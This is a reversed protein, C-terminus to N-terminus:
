EILVGLFAFCNDDDTQHDCTKITNRVLIYRVILLDDAFYILQKRICGYNIGDLCGKILVIYTFLLIM